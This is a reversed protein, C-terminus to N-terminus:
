VLDGDPRRLMSLFEADARDVLFDVEAWVQAHCFVDQNAALRNFKAEDIVFGHIVIGILDQV